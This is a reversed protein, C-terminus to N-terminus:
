DAPHTIIWGEPGRALELRSGFGTANDISRIWDPRFAYLVSRRIVLRFATGLKFRECYAHILARRQRLETVRSVMGRMQVGRIQRWNTTSRYVAVAARPTGALNESQASSESSLWYLSLEEDALYFLPAVAPEGEEGSTALALTTEEALLAAISELEKQPERMKTRRIRRESSVRGLGFSGAAPRRFERRMSTNERVPCACTKKGSFSFLCGM